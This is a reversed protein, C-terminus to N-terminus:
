RFIAVNDIKEGKYLKVGGGEEGDALKINEIDEFGPVRQLNIQQSLTEFCFETLSKQNM